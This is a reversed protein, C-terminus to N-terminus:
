DPRIGLAWGRACRRCVARVHAVLRNQEAHRGADMGAVLDSGFGLEPGRDVLSLVKVGIAPALVAHAHGAVAEFEM